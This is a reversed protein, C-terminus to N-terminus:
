NGMVLRFGLKYCTTDNQITAVQLVDRNYKQLNIMGIRDNTAITDKDWLELLCHRKPLAISHTLQKTEGPNIIGVLAIGPKGGTIQIYIFDKGYRDKQHICSIWELNLITSTIISRRQKKKTLLM